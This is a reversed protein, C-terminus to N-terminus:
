LLKLIRQKLFFMKRHFPQFGSGTFLPPFSSGERSFIAPQGQTLAGFALIVVSTCFHLTQGRNQVNRSPQIRSILSKQLKTFHYCHCLAKAHPQM